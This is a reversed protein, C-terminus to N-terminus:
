NAPIIVRNSSIAGVESDFYVYVKKGTKTSWTLANDTIEPRASGQTYTTEGPFRFWVTVRQGDTFGTTIGDITIGPKGSVTDRKGTIVISKEAAAAVEVSISSSANGYAASVVGKGLSSGAVVTVTTSGTPGTTAQSPLSVPGSGALAVVAGPLPTGDRSVSVTVTTSAGPALSLAAPTITVTYKPAAWQAYLTVRAGNPLIGNPHGPFGTVVDGARGGDRAPGGTRTSWGLFTSEPPSCNPQPDTGTGQEWRVTGAGSVQVADRINSPVLVTVKRADATAQNVGNKLCPVDMGVNADYTLLIGNARWVAYLTFSEDGIPVMSIFDTATATASRAWGLFTYDARSCQQATPLTVTGNEGNMKTFQMTGTCTGGNTDLTATPYVLAPDSIATGTSSGSNITITGLTSLTGRYNRRVTVTGTGTITFTGTATGAFLDLVRCDADVLCPTGGLSVSGTQNVLSVYYNADNDGSILTNALFFTDGTVGSLTTPTVSYGMSYSVTVTGVNAATAPPAVALLGGTAALATLVPVLARRMM